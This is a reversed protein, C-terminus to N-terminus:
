GVKVRIYGSGRVDHYMHTTRVDEHGLLEQTDVNGQERYMREALSRIEHFTPPTKDGWHMGLSAVEVAFGKSLTDIFIRRGVPSNGRARTQHVLFKSIIGTRRCQRVVDELSMGFRELRIAVPIM